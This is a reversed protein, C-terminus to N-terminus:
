NKLENEISLMKLRKLELLDRWDKKRMQKKNYNKANVNKRKL